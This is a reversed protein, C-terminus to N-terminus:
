SAASGWGGCWRGSSPCRKPFWRRSLRLVQKTCLAKQVAAVSVFDTSGVARDPMTEDEGVARGGAPRSPSATGISLRPGSVQQAAM